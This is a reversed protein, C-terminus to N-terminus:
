FFGVECYETVLFLSNHESYDGFYKLINEHKAKKILDIENYAALNNRQNNSLVL